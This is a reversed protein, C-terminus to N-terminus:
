RMDKSQYVIKGGVVTQLVKINAIDEAPITFFNRDLIIMDALKGVELSGTDKEQRLTYAANLTIARLVDARPMGPQATLKGAYAQGANPAATRTVGVKLAFWEDLPDVPWDSGYAVRAGANLLLAQPQVVAYRQPGLYDKLAEVTDPAPKGWQFSLVPTVDLKAFRPYDAPDVIEDHALAPRVRKGEPTARLDEIADLTERVARDGDVHVHPDIKARALESLTARLSEATFYTPPGNHPGPQWSPKDPTGQNVLYPELMAGTFAPAAIVGDMFLKAHRVQMSPAVKTPGQDFQKQQKLLETVTSQPTGGKDLDILVAFHARATLKGQKQLDAFATMTEPDTYADLFTTIGQQRMAALAAKSASLNEAVTLPPLLNMALDQAADELLGTANGKADRTIIGGPPNPTDREIKATRIGKSNLLASHGFSSRVIIPRETKLADLMVATTEVGDPQMGQQFWNVVIMWREPGSKKDNDLCAQIRSQFQAVTLPEYNLSCNLLRSGGSQPHMHGDILGPMLMRGHLDITETKKGAYAKAGDNDGVYVIRGGRVALAQQVSDKADVTYIYGNRYITDAPTPAAYANLSLALAAFLGTRIM